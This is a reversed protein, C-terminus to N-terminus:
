PNLFKSSSFCQRKKCYSMINIQSVHSVSSDMAAGDLKLQWWTGAIPPSLPRGAPPDASNMRDPIDASTVSRPPHEMTALTLHEGGNM